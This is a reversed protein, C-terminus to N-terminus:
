NTRINGELLGRLKQRYKKQNGTSPFPLGEKQLIREGLGAENFAEKIIDFITTRVIIISKPNLKKTEDILRPIERMMAEKRQRASLGKDIPEYSADILFFGLSQFKRLLPVKDFDKHMAASEPFLGVAKMTESFLSSKGTTKDFYFYGGSAPPSEAILLFKVEGCPKFKDRALIYKSM